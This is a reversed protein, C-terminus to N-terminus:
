NDLEYTRNVNGSIVKIGPRRILAFIFKAIRQQLIVPNDKKEIGNVDDIINVKSIIDKKTDTM